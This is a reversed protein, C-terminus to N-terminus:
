ATETQSQKAHTSTTIDSARAATTVAHLLVQTSALPVDLVQVSLTQMQNCLSQPM